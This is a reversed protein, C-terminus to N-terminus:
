FLAQAKKFLIRQAERVGIAYPREACLTKESACTTLFFMDPENRAQPRSFVSAKM